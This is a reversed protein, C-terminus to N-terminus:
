LNITTISLVSEKSRSLAPLSQALTYFYTYQLQSGHIGFLRRQFRTLLTGFHLFVHVATAFWSNRVTMKSIQYPTHWLSSIRTSCYRVMFESCDDKFGPLSHALTYFYTYNMLSGHIGFLRRQFRTHLICLQLFVYLENAFWSNRVTTKSIQYPTHWLTSIRTFLRRQFRIEQACCQYM